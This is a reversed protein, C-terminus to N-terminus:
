YFSVRTCVRKLLRISSVSCDKSLRRRTGDTKRGFVVAHDPDEPLPDKAVGQGLQRVLGATISVLGFGEHGRLVKTVPEGRALLSSQIAVSMEPDDFAASTPRRRGLNSDFVWWAPPVRRLLQETSPISDDDVFPLVRTGLTM